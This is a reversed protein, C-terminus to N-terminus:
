ILDKLKKTIEGWFKVCAVELKKHYEIDPEVRFINLLTKGSEENKYFSVFDCWERKTIWLQGQVQPKNVSPLKNEATLYAKLSKHSKIELNGNPKIFGDPSGGVFKFEPHIIFFDQEVDFDTEWEYRGRAEAEWAKGHRFWPQDNDRFDPIGLINDIIESMYGQYRKTSPSALVDGFRSATILGERAEKWKPSRQKEM